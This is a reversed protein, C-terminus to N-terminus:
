EALLYNAMNFYNWIIGNSVLNIILYSWFLYLVSIGLHIFFDMRCQLTSISWVPSLLYAFLIYFTMLCTVYTWKEVDINPVTASVLIGVNARNGVYTAQAPQKGKNSADNHLYWLSLVSRPFLGEWAAEVPSCFNLTPYLSLVSLFFDYSHFLGSGTRWTRQGPFSPFPFSFPVEGKLWSLDIWRASKLPWRIVKVNQIIVSLIKTQFADM